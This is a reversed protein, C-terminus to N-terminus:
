LYLDGNGRTFVAPSRPNKAKYLSNKCFPFPFVHIKLPNIPFKHLKGGDSLRLVAGHRPQQETFRIQFGQFLRLGVHLLGPKRDPRIGALVKVPLVAAATRTCFGDVKTGM